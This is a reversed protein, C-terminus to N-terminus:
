APCAVEPLPSVVREGVAELTVMKVLGLLLTPVTVTLM